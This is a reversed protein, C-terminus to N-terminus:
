KGGLLQRMEEELRKYVQHERWAHRINRMAEWVHPGCGLVLVAGFCFIVLEPLAYWTLAIVGAWFVVYVLTSIVCIMVFIAVWYRFILAVVILLVVFSLIAHLM